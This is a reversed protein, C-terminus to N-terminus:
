QVDKKIICQTIQVHIQDNDLLAPDLDYYEMLDNIDFDFLAKGDPAVVIVEGGRPYFLEIHDLASDPLIEWGLSSFYDTPIFSEAVTWQDEKLVSVWVICPVPKKSIIANGMAAINVPKVQADVLYDGPAWNLDPRYTNEPATTTTATTTVTTTNITDGAPAACATLLLAALTISLSLSLIRKM